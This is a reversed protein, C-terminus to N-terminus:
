PSEKVRPLFLPPVPQTAEMVSRTLPKGRGQFRGQPNVDRKLSVLGSKAGFVLEGARTCSFGPSATPGRVQTGSPCPSSLDYCSCLILHLFGRSAKIGLRTSPLGTLTKTKSKLFMDRQGGRNNSWCSLYSEEGRLLVCVLPVPWM